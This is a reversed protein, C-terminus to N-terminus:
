RRSQARHYRHGRAPGGCGAAPSQHRRVAGIREVAGDGARSAQQWAGRPAHGRRPRLRSPRPSSDRSCSVDRGPQQRDPGGASARRRARARRDRTRAHLALGGSPVDGQEHVVVGLNNLARAIDPDGPPLTARAISSRESRAAGAGGALDGKDRLMLGLNNVMRATNASDAGSTKEVIAIARRYLPEARTYDGKVRYLGALNNLAIAVDDHDPGRAKEYIKLARDLLPEAARYDGVQQLVQGLNNVIQATEAADPGSIQERIALAREFATRAAAYNAHQFQLIGLENLFTAVAEDGPGLATTAADIARTYVRLRMASAGRVPRRRRWRRSRTPM